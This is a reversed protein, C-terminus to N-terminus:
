LNVNKRCAEILKRCHEQFEEESMNRMKEPVIM